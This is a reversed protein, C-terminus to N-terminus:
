INLKEKIVSKLRETDVPKAIHENMGADLAAKVDESFANATMAIIPITKAQPHSSKRIAMTAEYGNMVPMQVDMLILDYQNLASQEFKEVAEKGNAALDCTIEIMGLLELLIEANLENDEAALVNKGKLREDSEEAPNEENEGAKLSSVMLKFNSLFFPKQLFNDIGAEMGEEEIKEIDYATLMIIPTHPLIIKRMRRATEIGSIDPMQWDILVMDFGGGEKQSAEAMAVGEQGGLAYEVAIGTDEMAQKIGTCIGEEDDVVLLRSIGCNKWFDLDDDQDKIRLELELTFTSGKDPESEVQITGGMLDVLNKTIAMGLGTGQINFTKTNAERSFPHFITKLYEKSMGIGTDKIVFRFCAHNKAHPSIQYVNMEIKGGEPTYKVANSLINILIQNIRLRDGLFEENCINYVNINFSQHKAKAQPLMMTGLEDVIDALCIESINLTTKGSEIKSMDLVDNILGLLHQSSATIKKTYAQVKEPNKADRQLLSSFGVIANMPTRIDHSMNSLFISKSENATKAIELADNLAQRSRREDTRDSLVVVFRESCNVSTKYITEVFWRIKGSRKHIREGEHVISKDTELKKIANFEEIKNDSSDRELVRINEKIEEQSIGLVREINPSIYEVEYNDPTFMLFVDNTNNALISFLQERYQVDGEKEKIQEQSQKKMKYIFVGAVVIIEAVLLMFMQWSKLVEDAHKMIMLDSVITIFHWGDTGKVPTFALIVKEGEIVFRMVGERNQIMRDSFIKMQGRDNNCAELEDWINSFAYTIKKNSSSMLVNGQRDTICSFESNHYFSSFFEESIFSLRHQIQVIGPSGDLFNFRQYSGILKHGTNANFYPERFDKEKFSQYVALEEANIKRDEQNKNEYMMGHDLDIVTFNAEDDAFWEAIDKIVAQDQSSIRSFLKATKELLQMDKKLYVEFSHSSKSTAELVESVAWDRLSNQISNIYYVVGSVSLSLIMITLFVIKSLNDKKSMM